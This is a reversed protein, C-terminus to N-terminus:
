THKFNLTGFHSWLNKIQDEVMKEDVGLGSLQKALEKHLERHTHQVERAFKEWGKKLIGLYWMDLEYELFKM